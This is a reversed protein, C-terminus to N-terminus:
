YSRWITGDAGDELVIGDILLDDRLKDALVWNKEARAKTRQAIIADIEVSTMNVNAHLAQEPSLRAFGLMKLMSQLDKALMSSTEPEQESVSYGHKVLNFCVTFAQVTNLDDQLSSVFDHYFSSREQNQALDDEPLFAQLYRYFRQIIKNASKLSEQDFALPQRYHSALLLYRIAEGSALELAARITIFNGLSKSMKESNNTVHGVHMWHKVYDAGFACVSQATENEHHPFKLDIGGGHIDVTFGLYNSAMASCEIHWGPRGDGWPSPWSPEGAKAPKWLVFDLADKKNAQMDKRVNAQLADINQGSVSGYNHYSRADFWVTGDTIYAHKNDILTTILEIMSEINESAKPEYDPSLNGLHREDEHMADIYKATLAAITINDESARAIIKDDVDTINRVYNVTYGQYRLVRVLVDFFVMVRAHGVHCYDYTTMGCVYIKVMGPQLTQLSEKINKKPNFINIVQM